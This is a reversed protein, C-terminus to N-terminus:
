ARYIGSVVSGSEIPGTRRLGVWCVGHGMCSLSLNPHLLCRIHYMCERGHVGWLRDLRQMDQVAQVRILRSRSHGVSGTHSVSQLKSGLHGVSM